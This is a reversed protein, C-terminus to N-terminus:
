MTPCAFDTAKLFKRLSSSRLMDVEVVAQFRANFVKEEFVGFKWAFNEDQFLPQVGTSSPLPCITSSAFKNVYFNERNEKRRPKNRMKKTGNIHGLM